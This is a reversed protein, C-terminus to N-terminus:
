VQLQAHMNSTASYYAILVWIKHAAMHYMYAHYRIVLLAM